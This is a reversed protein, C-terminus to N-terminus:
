YSCSCASWFSFWNISKILKVILQNVVFICQQLAVGADFKRLYYNSPWWFSWPSKLKSMRLTVPDYRSLYWVNRTFWNEQFKPSKFLLYSYMEKSFLVDRTIGLHKLAFINNMKNKWVCSFLFFIWFIINAKYSNTYKDFCSGFLLVFKM